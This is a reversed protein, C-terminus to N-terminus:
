AVLHSHPISLSPIYETHKTGDFPYPLWSDRNTSKWMVRKTHNTLTYSLDDFISNTRSSNSEICMMDLSLPPTSNLCM